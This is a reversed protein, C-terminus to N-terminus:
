HRNTGFAKSKLVVKCVREFDKDRRGTVAEYLLSAIHRYPSDASSSTPRHKSFRVVLAFASRACWEKIQDRRGAGLTGKVAARCERKIEELLEIKQPSKLRLRLEPLAALEGEIKMTAALIKRASARTKRVAERSLFEPAAAQLARLQKGVAQLVDRDQWCEHWPKLRTAIASVLDHRAPPHSTHAWM